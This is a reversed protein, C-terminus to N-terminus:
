GAIIWAWCLTTIILLCVVRPTLADDEFLYVLGILGTVTGWIWAEVDLFLHWNM